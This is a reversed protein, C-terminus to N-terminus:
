VSPCRDEGPRRMGQVCLGAGQSQGQEQKEGPRQRGHGEPRWGRAPSWSCARSLPRPCGASGQAGLLRQRLGCCCSGQRHADLGRRPGAASGRREVRHSCVRPAKQPPRPARHPVQHRRGGCPRAAARTSGHGRSRLQDCACTGSPLLSDLEAAGGGGAPEPLPLGTGPCSQPVEAAQGEPHLGGAGWWQPSGVAGWLRGGPGGGTGSDRPGRKRSRVQGWTSIGAPVGRMPPHTPKTNEQRGVIPLKRIFHTRAGAAAGLRSCPAAGRPEGGRTRTRAGGLSPSAGRSKIKGALKDRAM